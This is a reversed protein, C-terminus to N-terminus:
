ALKRGVHVAAAIAARLMRLQRAPACVGDRWGKVSSRQRSMASRKM